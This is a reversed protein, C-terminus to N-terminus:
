AYRERIEVKSIGIYDTMCIERRCVTPVCFKIYTIIWIERAHVTLVYINKQLSDCMDRREGASHPCISRKYALMCAWLWPPTLPTLHGGVGGGGGFHGFEVRDCSLGRTIM